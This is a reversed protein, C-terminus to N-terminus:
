GEQEWTGNVSMERPKGRPIRLHNTTVCQCLKISSHHFAEELGQDVRMSNIQSRRLKWVLFIPDSLSTDNVHVRELDM